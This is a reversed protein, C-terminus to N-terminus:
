RVGGLSAVAATAALLISTFVLLPVMAAGWAVAATSRVLGARRAAALIQAPTRSEPTAEHLSVCALLFATLAISVLLPYSM